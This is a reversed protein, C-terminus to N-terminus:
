ERNHLTCYDNLVNESLFYELTQERCRITALRGSEACVIRQCVGPPIRFKQPNLWPRVTKMFRAWIKAAGQAGTLNTPRNDDYGVWVLVLLDTTFGAFWSDRYESTTGTKGACNFDIGLRKISKATGREVVGALISTILFARAPSTVSSFEVTRRQQVDGNEGVIEKLSLLFPKQGDNDLIAYVAALEIPTVEFSGLALSPVPQMPSELGLSRLTEIVKGLGTEVALNVTAANLSQELAERVSVRGRYKNDFNRPTWSGGDTEFAVPVDDLRDSLMYRDLASLYVFPKLASGPQRRAQLARNFGSEAYDRGGVLAYIAGTKPQIAILAAQLRESSGQGAEGSPPLDKELERLGERVAEEAAVAMEPHLTTYINLGESALVGPAYLEQAQRRVYDIFYPAIGSAISADALRIPEVRSADYEVPSIKRLDLMRKLVVNRRELAAEPHTLPSYNNPGRIIGALTAAESLTLDDVNRGFYYRSAEGMGHIAVSGRQGMYIENMYMELIEDKDYLAELILAMSFELSKRRFSREPVLFYNKVLQQTITSGGQVVKGARFDALVARLIGMLDVGGHEHFRHDEISIIADTLHRPVQRINILMRSEREPGFLRSIEIPELELFHTDGKVGRMRAIKNHQFDFQIRQSPLFHGPFQFDRLHVILSSGSVRYEGALIPEKPAEKYRRADLMHRLRSLSLAQGSYIPVTASFVRAPVSWRRSAFRDRIENYMHWTFAAGFIGALLPVLVLIWVIFKRRRSKEKSFLKM